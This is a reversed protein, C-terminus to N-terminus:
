STTESKIQAGLNQLKLVIDEYGREIQESDDIISKGEALLAGIIIAFGARIDHAKLVEDKSSLLTSGKILIERPNMITINAGLKVLEETYRFRNEFIAEFVKSEGSAQTLYVTMQPQLDTPFGPYEHTRINIPQIKSGRKVYIGNKNIKIEAGTKQLINIIAEMADVPAGSIFVDKGLQAGLILFSGAEIRDPMIEYELNDSRLSAVGEIEIIPTGAGKIKAGCKNLFNALHPIEPEMACNKLITKGQAMVGAMMLTETGGVTQFDFFIETGKLGNKATIEYYDKQFIIDAGMRKYGDIFVDIPREGIVCGGPIPFKVRKFRSLLPGTLVVSARMKRSIDKPFDTNINKSLEIQISKKALDERVDFGLQKMLDSMLLVDRVWPVNNITLRDEFLAAAAIIKLADNKAGSVNVVGSLSNEGGTGIIEIKKKQM